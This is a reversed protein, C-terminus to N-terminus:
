FGGNQENKFIFGTINKSILKVIKLKTKLRTTNILLNKRELKLLQTIMMKSQM